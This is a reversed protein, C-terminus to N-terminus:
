VVYNKLIGLDSMLEIAKLGVKRDKFMKELENGIRKKDVVKFDFNLQM